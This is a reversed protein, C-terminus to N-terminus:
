QARVVAHVLSHTNAPLGAMLPPAAQNLSTWGAPLVAAPAPGSPPALSVTPTEPRAVPDQAAMAVVLAVAALDPTVGTPASM